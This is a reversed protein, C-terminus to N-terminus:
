CYAAVVYTLVSICGLFDSIEVYVIVSTLDISKATVLNKIFSKLVDLMSMIFSQLDLKLKRNGQSIISILFALNLPLNLIHM